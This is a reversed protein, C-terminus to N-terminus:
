VPLSGMQRSFYPLLASRQSLSATPGSRRAQPNWLTPHVCSTTTRPLVIM